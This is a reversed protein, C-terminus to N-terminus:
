LVCIAFWWFIHFLFKKLIYRIQEDSFLVTPPHEYTFMITLDNVCILTLLQVAYRLDSCKRDLQWASTINTTMRSDHVHWWFGHCLPTKHGTQWLHALGSYEGYSSAHVHFYICILRGLYAYYGSLFISSYMERLHICLYSNIETYICTNSERGM